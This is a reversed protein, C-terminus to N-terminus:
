TLVQECPASDISTSSAIRAYRSEHCSLPEGHSIHTSCTSRSRARKAADIPASLSSTATIGLADAPILATVLLRVKSVGREWTTTPSKSNGVIACAHIACSRRPAVIRRACAADVDGSV